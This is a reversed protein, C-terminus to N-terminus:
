QHHQISRRHAFDGAPMQESTAYKKSYIKFLSLDFENTSDLDDLRTHRLKALGFSYFLVYNPMISRSKQVSIIAAIYIQEEESGPSIFTFNSISQDM